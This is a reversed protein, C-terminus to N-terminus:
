NKILYFCHTAFTLIPTSDPYTSCRMAAVIGAPECTAMPPLTAYRQNTRPGVEHEHRDSKPQNDQDDDHSDSPRQRAHVQVLAASTSAPRYTSLWSCREAVGIQNRYHLEAQDAQQDRENRHKAKRTKPRNDGFIM